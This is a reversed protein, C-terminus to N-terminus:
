FVHSYFSLSFNRTNVIPNKKWLWTTTSTLMRYYKYHLAHMGTDKFDRVRSQIDRMSARRCKVTHKALLVQLFKGFLNWGEGIVKSKRKGRRKKNCDGPRLNRPQIFADDWHSQSSSLYGYIDEKSVGLLIISIQICIFHRELHVTMDYLTKSMEVQRKITRFEM